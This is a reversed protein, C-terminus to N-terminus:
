RMRNWADTGFRTARLQSARVQESATVKSEQFRVGLERTFGLVLADAAEEFGVERGVARDLSACEPALRNRKLPISGHHLIRHRTRRQASGVLKRGDSILDFPTAQRFCIPDDRRRSDSRVEADLRLVAKVGLSALGSAVAQHLRHYSEEVRGRFLEHSPSATLSFTLDDLHCIAGGGSVRRVLVLGEQEVWEGSFEAARQFYGISLGGPDWGYLRLVPPEPELAQDLAMNDFPHLRGHRILRM